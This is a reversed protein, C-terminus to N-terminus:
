RGHAAAKNIVDYTEKQGKHRLREYHDNPARSPMDNPVLRQRDSAKNSASPRVGAQSAILYVAVAIVATAVLDGVALGVLSPVDLEICNDCTRFKVYIFQKETATCSYEGSNEDKYELKVTQNLEEGGTKRLKSNPDNCKLEIGDGLKKVEIEDKKDETYCFYVCMYLDNFWSQCMLCLCSEM